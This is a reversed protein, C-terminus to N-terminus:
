WIKTETITLSESLIKIAEEFIRAEKVVDLKQKELAKKKEIEFLPDEIFERFMILIDEPTDESTKTDFHKPEISIKNEDPKYVLLCNGLDYYYYDWGM